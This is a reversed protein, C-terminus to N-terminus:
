LYQRGEDDFARVDMQPTSANPYNSRFLVFMMRDAIGYEDIYRRRLTAELEFGLKQPIRASANNMSSCHIEVRDMEYHDFAVRTLAATAETAIGKGCADAALWYGIELGHEGARKHLGTGGLLTGAKRDTIAFVFDKAQEFDHIWRTILELHAEPTVHDVRAWPMFQRLHGLNANITSNLASVDNLHYCRLVLRPSTISYIVPNM